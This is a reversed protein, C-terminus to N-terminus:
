SRDAGKIQSGALKFLLLSEMESFVNRIEDPIDGHARRWRNKCSVIDDLLSTDLHAISIRFSKMSAPTPGFVIRERFYDTTFEM